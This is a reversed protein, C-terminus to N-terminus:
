DINMFFKQANATSWNAAVYDKIANFISWMADQIDGGMMSGAAQAYCCLDAVFEVNENELGIIFALHAMFNHVIVDKKMYCAMDSVLCKPSWWGELHTDTWGNSAQVNDLSNLLYVIPFFCQRKVGFHELNVTFDHQGIKTTFISPQANVNGCKTTKQTNKTM